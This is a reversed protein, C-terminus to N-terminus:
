RGGHYVERSINAPKGSMGKAEKLVMFKCAIEYFQRSDIRIHKLHYDHVPIAKFNNVKPPRPVRSQQNTRCDKMYRARVTNLFAYTKHFHDIQRSINVFTQITQNFWNGTVFEKLKNNPPGGIRKVEKLLFQMKRQQMNRQQM